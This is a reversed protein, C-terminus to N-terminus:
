PDDQRIKEAKKRNYQEHTTSVLATSTRITPNPTDVQRQNDYQRLVTAICEYKVMSLMGDTSDNLDALNATPSAAALISVRQSSDVMANALLMLASISDTLSANTALSNFRSLQSNFKLEFDRFSESPNTRTSMLM